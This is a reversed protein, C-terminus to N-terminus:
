RRHSQEPRTLFGWDLAQDQTYNKGLTLATVAKALEYGLYFAHSPDISSRSAMADFLDFPDESAVHMESNIAHLRGDEAFLRFNRDKVQRALEALGDPGHEHLKVDRLAVLATTLRKPPIRHTIAYHMLRRALDLEKVSTRAWNIVQTTLVSRIGAEQCFGALVVNVGLSDVDTLETVNGVGMMMAAEPYRRRVEWYRALSSAFGLGIPELIPDLRYRVGDRQLREVCFDLGALTAPDDPVVVVEVGWDAAREVNSTNVSLVLKAGANVARKVEDPDFSDISVRMQEDCLARVADAVQLWGGGPDCGVDIVDAGDAWLARAQRIIGDRTLQPAHNIEAVIELDYSGYDARTMPVMRFHDPLERLDNPGREVPLTTIVKLEELEGRCLGPLIIRDIGEPITLHSAIWKTTALAAVSIPLVAVRFSFGARPAIEELMRRLAPEALRGTVFLLTVGAADGSVM